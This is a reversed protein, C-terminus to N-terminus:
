AALDAGDAIAEEMDLVLPLEDYDPDIAELADAAEYASRAIVLAVAEGAFNVQDVAMAPANPSKMDARIPCACPLSGQQAALDAGTLVALVGPMDKAASTDIGTIRAHAHPSRLIAMHLMGPLTLNDTWRTRGAILRADEKGRRAKGVEPGVGSTM